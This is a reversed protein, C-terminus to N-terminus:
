WCLVVGVAVVRVVFLVHRVSVGDVVGLTYFLQVFLEHAVIFGGVEYVYFLIELM